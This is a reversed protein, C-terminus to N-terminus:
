KLFLMRAPFRRAILADFGSGFGAHRWYAAIRGHYERFAGDDKHRDHRPGALWTYMANGYDRTVGGTAIHWAARHEWENLSVGAVVTDHTYWGWFAVNTRVNRLDYSRARAPDLVVHGRANVIKKGFDRFDKVVSGPTVQIFGQAGHDNFDIARAGLDYDGTSEQAGECIILRAIDRRSFEPYFLANVNGIGEMLQTLKAPTWKSMIGARGLWGVSPDHYPALARSLDARLEAVGYGAAIAEAAIASAQEDSPEADATADQGLVDDGELAATVVPQGDGGEVEGDLAPPQAGTTTDSAQERGGAVAAEDAPGPAGCGALAAALGVVTWTARAHVKTTM